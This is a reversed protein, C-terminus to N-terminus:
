DGSLPMFGLDYQAESTRNTHANGTKGDLTRNLTGEHLRISGECSKCAIVLPQCVAGKGRRGYEGGGRVGFM